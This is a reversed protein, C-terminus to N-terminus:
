KETKKSLTKQSFALLNKRFFYAILVVVTLMLFENFTLFVVPVASVAIMGCFIVNAKSIVGEGGYKAKVWSLLKRSILVFVLAYVLLNLLITQAM